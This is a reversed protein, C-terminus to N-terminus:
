AAEGKSRRTVVCTAALPLGILVIGHEVRVPYTAVCTAAGAPREVGGHELSVKWAHLPCVVSAGTVIGDALPGGRHPCRNDVALFRHGLNFLAIERDALRVLRGERLPVSDSAAIRIWQHDTM